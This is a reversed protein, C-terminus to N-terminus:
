PSRQSVKHSFDLVYSDPYPMLRCMSQGPTCKEGLESKVNSYSAAAVGSAAAEGFSFKHSSFKRSDRSLAADDAPVSSLRAEAGGCSTGAKPVGAVAVALESASGLGAVSEGVESSGSFRVMEAPRMDLSEGALFSVM